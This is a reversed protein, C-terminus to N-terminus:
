LYAYATSAVSAKINLAFNVIKIIAIRQSLPCSAFKFCETFESTEDPPSM